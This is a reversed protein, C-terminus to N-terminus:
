IDNTKVFRRCTKRRERATCTNIRVFVASTFRSKKKKQFKCDLGCLLLCKKTICIQISEKKLKINSRYRRHNM